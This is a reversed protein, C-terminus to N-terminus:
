RECTAFVQTDDVDVGLPPTDTEGLEAVLQWDTKSWVRVRQDRCAAYLFNEDYTIDVAPADLKTVMEHGLPVSDNAGLSGKDM